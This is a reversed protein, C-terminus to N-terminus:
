ASVVGSRQGKGCVYISKYIKREIGLSHSEGGGSSQVKATFWFLLFYFFMAFINRGDKGIIDNGSLSVKENNEM